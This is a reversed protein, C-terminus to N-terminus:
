AAPAGPAAAATVGLSDGAIGCSGIRRKSGGATLLLGDCRILAGGTLAGAAETGALDAAGAILM